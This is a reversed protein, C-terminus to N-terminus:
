SYDTIMVEQKKLGPVPQKGSTMLVGFIGVFIYAARPFDINRMM